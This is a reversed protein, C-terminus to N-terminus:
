GIFNCYFMTYYARSVAFGPYGGALLMAAAKSSKSAKKLLEEQESTM